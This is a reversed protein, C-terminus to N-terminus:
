TAADFPHKIGLLRCFADTQPNRYEEPSNLQSTAPGHVPATHKFNAPIRMKGNLNQTVWEEEAEILPRYHAAGQDPTVTADRAIQLEKAFVRTIALWEKDYSLPSFDRKPKPIQHTELSPQIELLQLFGRKPLCKDLALFKTGTNKIDNELTPGAAPVASAIRQFSDPLQARLDESVEINSQEPPQEEGTSPQAQHAHAGNATEQEGESDLGIAIEDANTAVKSAAQQGTGRSRAEEDSELDLDIEDANAQAGNATPATPRAEEELRVGEVGAETKNWRVLAPYKCHLHASFWHPPRLHDMLYKAAPSGLDGKRADAELFTKDRFLARADGLWEIGRPWDHSVGVDVQTRVQLLKRVDLERIHYVSRKDDEGYPIREYHPKRYHHGKWIGSAGAIRLGGYRVVNAAGLYYIDPAVWGGYHLDTLHNSAEHNGGVFLTLCPARRKGSYYAHFDGLQRYKAPVAMAHLDATNRVAQFDGCILVLDVGHRWGKVRSAHAISSYIANLTGHGCGVVALRVARPM